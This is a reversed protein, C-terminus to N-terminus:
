PTWTTQEIGEQGRLELPKERGEPASEEPDSREREIYIYRYTYIYAGNQCNLDAM